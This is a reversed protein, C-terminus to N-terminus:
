KRTSDSGIIYPKFYRIVIRATWYENNTFIRNDNDDTLWMRITNRKAGVLESVPIRAPNFPRSVIQSGPPVDILVQAITQNYDNNFRIGKNTLDSHILFYNVQNFAAVNPALISIPATIYPGYVASDFGLIVRPTDAPTFDVIVNNYNFRLEVRSTPEDPSFSILPNPDIQAGANELGRLIAQSIGNLDYLGQPITIIYNTTGGNRIRSFEGTNPAINGELLGGVNYTKSTATDAVIGLIEYLFGNSVGSDPRFIDGVVFAGIPMGGAINRLELNSVNPAVVTMEYTSAVPFGLDTRNTTEATAPTGTIYMKDNKGTIINPVTWWVTAEEVSLTASLAEAPLSLGDQLQIEFYSGDASRNGAGNNPDSSVIMSIEQPVMM